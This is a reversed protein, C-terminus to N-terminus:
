KIMWRTSCSSIGRLSTIMGTLKEFPAVVFGQASINKYFSLRDFVAGAFRRDVKIGIPPHLIKPPITIADRRFYM